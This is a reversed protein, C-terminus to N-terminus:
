FGGLVKPSTGYVALRTGPCRRSRLIVFGDSILSLTILRIGCDRKNNKHLLKDMGSIVNDEAFLWREYNAFFLMNRFSSGLPPVFSSLFSPHTKM